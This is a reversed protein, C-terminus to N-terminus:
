YGIGVCVTLFITNPNAKLSPCFSSQYSIRIEKATGKSLIPLFFKFFYERQAKLVPRLHHYPPQRSAFSKFKRWLGQLTCDAELRQSKPHHWVAWCVVIESRSVKTQREEPLIMQCRWIKRGQCKRPYDKQVYWRSPSVHTSFSLYVNLYWLATRTVNATVNRSVSTLGRTASTVTAGVMSIITQLYYVDKEGKLNIIQRTM